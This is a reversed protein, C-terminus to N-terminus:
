APDEAVEDVGRREGAGHVQQGGCGEASRELTSRHIGGQSRQGHGIRGHCPQEVRRRQEALVTAVPVDRRQHSLADTTQLGVNQDGQVQPRRRLLEAADMVRAPRSVLCRM